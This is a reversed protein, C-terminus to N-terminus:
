CTAFGVLIYVLVRYIRHTQLNKAQVHTCWNRVSTQSRRYYFCQCFISPCLSFHDCVQTWNLTCFALEPSSLIWFNLRFEMYSNCAHMMSLVQYNRCHSRYTPSNPRSSRLGNENVTMTYTCTLSTHKSFFLACIATKTREITHRMTPVVIWMCVCARMWVCVRVIKHIQTQTPFQFFCFVLMNQTKKM